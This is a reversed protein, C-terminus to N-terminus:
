LLVYAYNPQIRYVSFVFHILVHRQDDCVLCMIPSLMKKITSACYDIVFIQCRRSVMLTAVKKLPILSLVHLIAWCVIVNLKVFPM